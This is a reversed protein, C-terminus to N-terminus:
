AEASSANSRETIWKEFLKRLARAMPEGEVFCMTPAFDKLYRERLEDWSEVNLPLHQCVILDNVVQRRESNAGKLLRSRSEILWCKFRRQGCWLM